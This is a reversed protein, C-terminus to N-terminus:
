CQFMKASSAKKYISKIDTASNYERPFLWMNIGSFNKGEFIRWCCDGEVNISALKDDILNPFSAFDQIHDSEIVIPQGRFYTKEYMTLKGFTCPPRTTTTTPPNTVPPLGGSSFYDYDLSSYDDIDDYLINHSQSNSISMSNVNSMSHQLDFQPINVSSKRAGGMAMRRRSSGYGRGRKSQVGHVLSKGGGSSKYVMPTFNRGMPASQYVPNFSRSTYRPGISGSSPADRNITSNKIYENNSEVVLSTVKTVFNYEKALKIAKNTCNENEEVEEIYDDIPEQSYTPEDLYQGCEKPDLLLHVRKYAWLKEMFEEAESKQWSEEYVPPQPLCPVPYLMRNSYMDVISDDDYETENSIRALSNRPMAVPYCPDSISIIKEYAGNADEGLIQIQLETINNNNGFEGAIVFENSGYANGFDNKTLKSAPIEQGDAIYKFHLNKLKPDSIEQYFNELQQYSSGSEYIRKAFANSDESIGKILDFDAGSGFALGYIRTNYKNNKNKVNRKIQERNTTPGSTAEGDTLFIIMIEQVDAYIASEKIRNAMEVAEVMADNINTGGRTHLDFIAAQASDILCEKVRRERRVYVRNCQPINNPIDM